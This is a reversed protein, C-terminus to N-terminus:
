HIGLKTPTFELVIRGIQSLAFKMQRELDLHDRTATQVLTYIAELDKRDADNLLPHTIGDDLEIDEPTRESRRDIFDRLLLRAKVIIPSKTTTPVSYTKHHLTVTAAM